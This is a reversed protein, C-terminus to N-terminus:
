MIIYVTYNYLANYAHMIAFFINTSDESSFICTLWGCVSFAASHRFGNNEDLDCMISNEVEFSVKGTLMSFTFRVKQTGTSNNSFLM